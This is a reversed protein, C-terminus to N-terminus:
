AGVSKLNNFNRGGKAGSMEKGKSSREKIADLAMQYGRTQFISKQDLLVFM